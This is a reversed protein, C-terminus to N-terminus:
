PIPEPEANTPGDPQHPTLAVGADPRARILSDLGARGSEGWGALMTPFGIGETPGHPGQQFEVGRILVVRSAGRLLESVYATNHSLPGLWVGESVEAIWKRGFASAASFPPNCWVVGEWPQTLADDERTYWRRAPLWPVGGPPAAVDLDFELGMGDFLWAPTWRDDPDFDSPPLAATADAVLADLVSSDFTPFDVSIDTFLADLQTQDPVALGAIPDFTALILAEEEDSLDVWTVPVSKEGRTIAAAVRLHGDVVFGTRRNAVVDTVWGVEDLVAVLAQEQSHPHIRWNRPNALLQDPAEETRDVIRNRWEAM